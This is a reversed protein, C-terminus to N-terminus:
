RDAGRQAQTARDAKGAPGERASGPEKILKPIAAVAQEPGMASYGGDVALDAGTIFSAHDSCLFLVAQAVEDPNGTRGLLHFPAAVDDTHARDDHSLESMIRSWTWGPSVSNVRIGEPALDM